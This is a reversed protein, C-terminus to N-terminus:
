ENRGKSVETSLIQLVADNSLSDVLFLSDLVDEIVSSPSDAGFSEALKQAAQERNGERFAEVAELYLKIPKASPM